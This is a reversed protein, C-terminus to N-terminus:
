QRGDRSVGYPDHLPETSLRGLDRTRRPHLLLWGVTFQKGYRSWVASPRTVQITVSRYTPDNFSHIGFATPPGAIPKRAPHETPPAALALTSELLFGTLYIM